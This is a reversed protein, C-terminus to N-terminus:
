PKKWPEVRRLLEQLSFNDSATKNLKNLFQTYEKKNLNFKVQNLIVEKAEEIATDMIFESSNKGLIKSASDIIELQFPSINLIISTNDVSM